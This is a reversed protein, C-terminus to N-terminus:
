RGLEKLFDELDGHTKDGMNRVDDQTNRDLVERIGEPTLETGESRKLGLERCLIMWTKSAHSDKREKGELFLRFQAITVRDSM